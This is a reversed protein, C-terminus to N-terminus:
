WDKLRLERIKRQLLQRRLGIETAAHTINSKHQRLARIIFGREFTEVMHQKAEKCTGSAVGNSSAGPRGLRLDDAQIEDGASLVLAAEVENKLERVNGPWCHHLVSHYVEASLPKPARGDRKAAQELFHAALRLIDEPRDRL